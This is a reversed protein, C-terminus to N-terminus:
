GDGKPICYLYAGTGLYAHLRFQFRYDKLNEMLLKQIKWLGDRSHYVTVNIKPRYKIFDSLNNKITELEHGEAHISVSSPGDGWQWNEWMTAKQRARISALDTALGPISTIPIHPYDIRQRRWDIFAGYSMRCLLDNLKRMVYNMGDVDEITFEDAFWGSGIGCEPYAEFIDYVPVIDTYGLLEIRQKLSSYPETAVCVAVLVDEHDHCVGVDPDYSDTIRYPISLEDFVKVALKGLQGKGYLVLPKDVRRPKM